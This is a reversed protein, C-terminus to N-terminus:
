ASALAISLGFQHFPRVIWKYVEVTQNVPNVIYAMRNSEIATRM